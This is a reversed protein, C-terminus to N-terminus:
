QLNIMGDLGSVATIQTGNRARYQPEVDTPPPQRTKHKAASTERMPPLGFQRRYDRTFQPVSQYGVAFAAASSTIGDSVMLRRAETLRLQKQFQLPTMSTAARFHRHFASASMGALHALREIPLARAFEARILAVARAVRRAASDPQSLGKIAAGNRGILLWYHLERVLPTMLLRMAEPRRALGMLRLLATAVEEETDAALDSAALADIEATLSAVSALDIEFLVAVYPEFLSARTVNTISPAGADLVLTDGPGAEVHRKGLMVKMAGQLVLCISPRSVTPRLEGPETLRAVTLGPIATAGIAAYRRAADLLRREGDGGDVTSAQLTSRLTRGTVGIWEKAPFTSIAAM